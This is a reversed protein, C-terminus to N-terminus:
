VETAAIRIQRMTIDENSSYNVFFAMVDSTGSYLQYTNFQIGDSAFLSCSFCYGAVGAINIYAYVPQGSQAAALVEAFTKNAGSITVGDTSAFTVVFAGGSGGLGKNEGTDVDTLTANASDDVSLKFQKTSGETSSWIVPSEFASKEFSYGVSVTISFNGVGSSPSSGSFMLQCTRSDPYFKISSLFFVAATGADNLLLPIPTKLDFYYANKHENYASCVAISTGGDAAYKKIGGAGGLYGTASANVTIEMGAYPSMSELVVGSSVVNNAIFTCSKNEVLVVEANISKTSFKM